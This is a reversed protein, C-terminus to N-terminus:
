ILFFPLPLFAGCLKESVVNVRNKDGKPRKIGKQAWRGYSWLGTDSLKKALPTSAQLVDGSLQSKSRCGRLRVSTSPAACPVLWFRKRAPLM